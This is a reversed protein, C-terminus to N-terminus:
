ILCMVDCLMTVDCWVMDDDGDNDDGGDFQFGDSGHRMRLDDEEKEADDGQQKKM